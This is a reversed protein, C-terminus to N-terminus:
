NLTKLYETVSLFHKNALIKFVEDDSFLSMEGPYDNHKWYGYYKYWGNEKFLKEIDVM